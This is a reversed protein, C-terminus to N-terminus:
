GWFGPFTLTTKSQAALNRSVEKFSLSRWPGCRVFLRVPTRCIGALVRLALTLCLASTGGPVQQVPHSDHGVNEKTPFRCDQLCGQQGDSTLEDIQRWTMAMNHWNQGLFFLVQYDFRTQRGFLQCLSDCSKRQHNSAISPWLEQPM